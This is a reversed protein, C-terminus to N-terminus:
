ADEFRVRDECHTCHWTNADVQVAGSHFVVSADNAGADTCERREPSLFSTEPPGWVTVPADCLEELAEEVAEGQTKM